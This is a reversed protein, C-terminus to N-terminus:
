AGGFRQDLWLHLAPIITVNAAWIVVLLLLLAVRVGLRATNASLRLTLWGAFLAVTITAALGLLGSEALTDLEPLRVRGRRGLNVTIVGATLMALALGEGYGAARCARAFAQKMSQPRGKAFAVVAAPAAFIVGMCAYAAVIVPDLFEIGKRQPLLVGFIAILAVHLM